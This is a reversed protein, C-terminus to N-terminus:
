RLAISLILNSRAPRMRNTKSASGMFNNVKEKKKKAGIELRM